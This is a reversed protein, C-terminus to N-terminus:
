DLLLEQERERGAETKRTETVGCLLLCRPCLASEIGGEGEPLPLSRGCYRVHLSLSNCVIVVASSEQSLVSYVLDKVILIACFVLEHYM